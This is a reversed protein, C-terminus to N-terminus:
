HRWRRAAAPRRGAPTLWRWARPVFVVAAVIMVVYAFIRGLLEEPPVLVELM